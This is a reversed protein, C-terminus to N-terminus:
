LPPGRRSGWGARLVALTLGGLGRLRSFHPIADDRWPALPSQLLSRLMQRIALPRDAADAYMLASQYWCVAHALRRDAASLHLAPNSFAKALVQQICATQRAAARSMNAGHDRKLLVVRDLLAVPHQTAVRIWMDRDESAQLSTDFGGLALLVRRDALVGPAFRNRLVLRRASIPVLTGTAPITDSMPKGKLDIARDRGALVAPPRVARQRCALLHLVADPALMDDADLFVVLDNAAERMGTNRAASLGANPQRLYRIRAGFLAAVAATDDTSGDDIVLVEVPLDPRSQRLASELADALFRAYNFCPILVSVM